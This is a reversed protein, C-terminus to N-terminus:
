RRMGRFLVTNLTSISEVGYCLNVNNVNKKSLAEIPTLIIIKHLSFQMSFLQCRSKWDVHQQCDVGSENKNYNKNQRTKLELVLLSINSLLLCTILEYRFVHFIGIRIFQTGPAM